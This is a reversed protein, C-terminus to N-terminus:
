MAKQCISLVVSSLSSVEEVPSELLDSLMEMLQKPAVNDVNTREAIEIWGRALTIHKRSDETDEAYDRMLSAFLRTYNVNGAYADLNTLIHETSDLFPRAPCLERLQNILFLRLNNHTYHKNDVYMSDEAFMRETELMELARSVTMSRRTVARVNAILRPVQESFVNEIIHKRPYAKPNASGELRYAATRETRIADAQRTREWIRRRTLGTIDFPASDDLGARHNLLTANDLEAFFEVRSRYSVNLVQYYPVAQTGAALEIHGMLDINLKNSIVTDDDLCGVSVLTEGPHAKAAFVWPLLAHTGVYMARAYYSDYQVMPRRIYHVGVQVRIGRLVIGHDTRVESACEMLCLEESWKGTVLAPQLATVFHMCTGKSAFSISTSEVDYHLTFGSHQNVLRQVIASYEDLDSSMSSILEFDPIHIHVLYHPSEFELTVPDPVAADGSRVLRKRLVDNRAQLYTSRLLHVSMVEPYGQLYTEGFEISEGGSLGGKFGIDEAAADSIVIEGADAVLMLRHAVNLTLGYLDEDGNFHCRDVVATGTHIGCRVRLGKWVPRDDDIDFLEGYTQAECGEAEDLESPWLQLVLDYQLALAFNAADTVSAFACLSTLSDSEGHNHTTRVMVGRCRLLLSRMVDSFVTVAKSYAADSVSYKVTEADPVDVYVVSLKAPLAQLQRKSKGASSLVEVVSLTYTMPAALTGLGHGLTHRGGGNSYDRQRLKGELQTLAQNKTQITQQLSSIQARMWRLDEDSVAGANLDSETTRTFYKWREVLKKPVCNYASFIKEMSPITVNAVHRFHPFELQSLRSRILELCEESILIEGAECAYALCISADRDTAAYQVRLTLPDMTTNTNFSHVGTRFRPGAFLVENEQLYVPQSKPHSNVSHPWPMVNIEIHLQLVFAVADYANQFAIEWRENRHSTTVYGAFDKIKTEVVAEFMSLMRRYEDGVLDRSLARVDCLVIAVLTINGEPPWYLKSLAAASLDGTGMRAFEGYLLVKEWHVDTGVDPFEIPRNAELPADRLLEPIGPVGNPYRVAVYLPQYPQVARLPVTAWPLVRVLEDEIKGDLAKAADRTLVVEGVLAIDFLRCVVNMDRGVLVWHETLLDFRREVNGLHMSARLVGLTNLLFDLALVGDVFFLFHKNGIVCLLQQANLRHSWKSNQSQDVEVIVLFLPNPPVSFTPRPLTTEEPSTLSAVKHRLGKIMVKQNAVQRALTKMVTASDQQSASANSVVQLALSDMTDQDSLTTYQNKREKKKGFTLRTGPSGTSNEESAKSPSTLIPVTETYPYSSSRSRRAKPDATLITKQVEPNQQRSSKLAGRSSQRSQLRPSGAGGGRLREEREQRKREREKLQTGKREESQIHSLIAGLGGAPTQNPLDVPPVDTEKLVKLLQQYNSHRAEKNNFAEKKVLDRQVFRHRLAELKQHQSLDDFRLAKNIGRSDEVTYWQGSAASNVSSRRRQSNMVMANTNSRPSAVSTADDSGFDSQVQSDSMSSPLRVSGGLLPPLLTASRGAPTDVPPSRQSSLLSRTSYTKVISSTMPSTPGHAPSKGDM